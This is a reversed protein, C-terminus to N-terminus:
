VLRFTFPLRGIAELYGPQLYSVWSFCIDLEMAEGADEVRSWFAKGKRKPPTSM